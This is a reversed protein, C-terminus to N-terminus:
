FLDFEIPRHDSLYFRRVTLNSVLSENSYSLVLDLTGGLEHTSGRVHQKLGFNKIIEHFDRISSKKKDQVHINFDGLVILNRRNDKTIRDIFSDFQDLFDPKSGGPPRYIIIMRLTQSKVKLELNLYEFTYNERSSHRGIVSVKSKKYFLAVGGGGREVRPQHHIVEFGSPCCFKLEHNGDRGPSAWTETVALLDLDNDEIYDKIEESKAENIASQANILSAHLM